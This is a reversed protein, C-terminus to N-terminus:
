KGRGNGGKGGVEQGYFRIEPQYRWCGQHDILLIPCFEYIQWWWSYVFRIIAKRVPNAAFVSVRKGQRLEQLMMIGHWEMDCHRWVQRSACTMDRITAWTDSAPTWRGLSSPCMPWCVSQGPWGVGPIFCWTSATTLGWCSWTSRWGSLLWNSSLIAATLWDSCLIILCRIPCILDITFLLFFTSAMSWVIIVLTALTQIGLLYPDGHWIIGDYRSM